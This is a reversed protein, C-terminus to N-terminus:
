AQAFSPTQEAAVGVLRCMLEAAQVDSLNQERALSRWTAFALALGVAARVRRRALGSERRGRLMTEAAQAVYTRYFTLMRRVIPMTAEDRIVNALMGETRRYYAYLDSLGTRLRTNPDAIAAWPAIDPHPNAAVWHATCAAFLAEEDQFHRYLTSRRVGARAAVASLSTRSPGVTGHLEVASETIRRRTAQELEARRTMRYQRKTIEVTM